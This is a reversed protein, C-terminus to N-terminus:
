VKRTRAISGAPLTSPEGATNIQVISRVAGFVVILPFGLVALLLVLAVNVKV